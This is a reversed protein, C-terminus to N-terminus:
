VANERTLQRDRQGAGAEVCAETDKV